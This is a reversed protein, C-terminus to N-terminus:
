QQTELKDNLLFKLVMNNTIWEIPALDDTFIIDTKPPPQLNAIALQMSALLLPHINGKATLYAYNSVLNSDQTPQITAYIVSNFANPIDM